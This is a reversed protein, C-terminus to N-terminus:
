KLPYAHGWERSMLKLLKPGLQTRDLFNGYQLKGLRAQRHKRKDPLAPSRLELFPLKRSNM